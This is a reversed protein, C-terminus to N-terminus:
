ITKLVTVSRISKLLTIRPTQAARSVSLSWPYCVRKLTKGRQPKWLWQGLHGPSLSHSGPWRGLWSSDKKYQDQDLGKRPHRCTQWRPESDLPVWRVFSTQLSPSHNLMYSDSPPWKLGPWTLSAAIKVAPTVQLSLWASLVSLHYALSFGSSGPLRLIGEISASSEPLRGPPSVEGRPDSRRM